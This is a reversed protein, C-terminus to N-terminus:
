VKITSMNFSPNSIDEQLPMRTLTGLGTMAGAKIFNATVEGNENVM